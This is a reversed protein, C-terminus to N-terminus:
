VGDSASLLCSGGAGYVGPTVIVFALLGPRKFTRAERSYDKLTEAQQM